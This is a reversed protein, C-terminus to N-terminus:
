ALREPPVTSAIDAAPTECGIHEDQEEQSELAERWSRHRRAHEDLLQEFAQKEIAHRPWVDLLLVRSSGAPVVVSLRIEENMPHTLTHHWLTQNLLQAEEAPLAGPSSALM